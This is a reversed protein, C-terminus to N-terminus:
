DFALQGHSLLNNSYTAFLGGVFHLQYHVSVCLVSGKRLSRICATFIYSLNYGEAMTVSFLEYLQKLISSSSKVQKLMLHFQEEILPQM